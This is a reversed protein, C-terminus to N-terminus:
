WVINYLGGQSVSCAWRVYTHNWLKGRETVSRLLGSGKLFITQLVRSERERRTETEQYRPTSAYLVFSGRLSCTESLMISDEFHNNPQNRTLTRRMGGRTAWFTKVLTPKLSLCCCPRSLSTRTTHERYRKKKNDSANQSDVMNTHATTRYSSRDSPLSVDPRSLRSRIRICPCPVDRKRKKETNEANNKGWKEGM